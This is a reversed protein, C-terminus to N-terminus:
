VRRHADVEADVDARGAGLGEGDVAAALNQGLRHGGVGTVMGFREPTLLVRVVPPVGRYLGDPGDHLLCLELRGVDFRDAQGALHVAGDEEVLLVLHDAPCKEPVVLAGGGFAGFDFFAGAAAFLKDFHDGVRRRRVPSNAVSTLSALPM